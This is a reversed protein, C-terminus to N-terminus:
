HINGALLLHPLVSPLQYLHRGCMPLEGVTPHGLPFQSQWNLSLGCTINHTDWFGARWGSMSCPDPSGWCFAGFIWHEEHLIQLIPGCTNEWFASLALLRSWYPLLLLEEYCFINLVGTEFWDGNCMKEMDWLFQMRLSMQFSSFVTKANSSSPWAPCQREPM